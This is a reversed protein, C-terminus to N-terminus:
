EVTIKSLKLEFKQAEKNGILFGIEELSEGPYNPQNLSQGRFRPEMEQFPITIEQWSGNTTFYYVYSYYDGANYKVRFQYRKGDGKLFLVFNQASAVDISQEMRHRVLSFGGNNELSVKGTFVGFGEDNIFFSGDSRGGMVADDVVRWSVPDTSKSFEFITTPQIAMM